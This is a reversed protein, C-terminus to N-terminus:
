FQFYIFGGQKGTQNLYFSTVVILIIFLSYMSLLSISDNVKDEKFNLSPLKDIFPILLFALTTFVLYVKDDYISNNTSSIFSTFIRNFCIGIDSISQCRFFIWSFLVIVFTLPIYILKKRNKFKVVSELIVFLGCYLGWLVYTWNAGHWLGSFFFILLVNFIQRIKGRRNGGLPIYLYDRFWSGLSIHWRRYFESMSSSLYPRDFNEMLEFGFLYASGKAIDCYGSFDCYIQGYFFLTALIISSGSSINLNSYVNDVFISLMDAIVIKKVYGIILYRSAKIINDVKFKKDELLQPLLHDIREIPGAVLQPFFSVFLAYHFFNKVPKYDERYVDVVYSLTQFTFFSIGVPLIIDISKYSINTNFLKIFDFLSQGIFNLYKFTFLLGLSVSTSLILYFKKIKKNQSKEIGLACLYTLLTSFLILFSLWVNNCAYFFYSAILLFYPRIKNPLCFYLCVVVPLFVLYALSNFTM